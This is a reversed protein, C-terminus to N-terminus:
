PLIFRNRPTACDPLAGAKPAPLRLNLDQRGSNEDSLSQCRKRTRWSSPLFGRRHFELPYERTLQRPEVQANRLSRVTGFLRDVTKAAGRENADTVRNYYQMTVSVDSRGLLKALTRSPTGADAHNQGFSKRFTSLTFPATQEMGAKRLYANTDRLLNNLMDRNQWPRHGHGAWGKGERCLRWNLLTCRSAGRETDPLHALVVVVVAVVVDVVAPSSM